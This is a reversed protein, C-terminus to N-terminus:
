TFKFMRFPFIIKKLFELKYNLIEIDDINNVTQKSLYDNIKSSLEYLRNFTNLVNENAHRKVREKSGNFRKNSNAADERYSRFTDRLRSFNYEKDDSKIVSEIRTM